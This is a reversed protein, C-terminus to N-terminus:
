NYVSAYAFGVVHFSLAGEDMFKRDTAIASSFVKIEKFIGDFENFGVVTHVPTPLSPGLTLPNINFPITNPM